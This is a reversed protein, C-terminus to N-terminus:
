VLEERDCVPRGLIESAVLLHRLEAASKMQGDPGHLPSLAIAPAAVREREQQREEAAAQESRRRREAELRAREQLELQRM